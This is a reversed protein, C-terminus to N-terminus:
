HTQRLSFQWSMISVWSANTNLRLLFDLDLYLHLMEWLHLYGLQNSNCLTTPQCRSLNSSWLEIDQSYVFPWFGSCGMIRSKHSTLYTLYSHSSMAEDHLASLASWQIVPLVLPYFVFRLRLGINSIVYFLYSSTEYTCEDEIIKVLQKVGHEFYGVAISQDVVM